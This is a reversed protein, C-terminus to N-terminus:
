SRGFRAYIPTTPANAFAKRQGYDMLDEVSRSQKKAKATLDPKFTCDAIEEQALQHRAKEVKERKSKM